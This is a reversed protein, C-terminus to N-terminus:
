QIKISNIEWYDYRREIEPMSYDILNRIEEKPIDKISTCKVIDDEFNSHRFLLTENYLELIDEDSIEAEIVVKFKM